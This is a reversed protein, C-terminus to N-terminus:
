FVVVSHVVKCTNEAIRAVPLRSLSTSLNDRLGSPCAPTFLISPDMEDQGEAM